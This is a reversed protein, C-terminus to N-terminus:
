EPLKAWASPNFQLNDPSYGTVLEKFLTDDPLQAPYASISNGDATVLAAFSLGAEGQLSIRFEFSYKDGMNNNNAVWGNQLFYRDQKEQLSESYVRDRLEWNFKQQLKWSSEAKKYVQKGLAASAHLVQVSDGRHLYVHAWGAVTSRIGIYLENGQKLVYLKGGASLDYATAGAWENADLVGDLKIQDENGPIFSVSCILLAIIFSTKMYHLKFLLFCLGEERAMMIYRKDFFSCFIYLRECNKKDKLSVLILVLASINSIGNTTKKVSVALKVGAMTSLQSIFAASFPEQQM